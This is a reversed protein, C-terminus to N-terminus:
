EEWGGNCSGDDTINAEYRGGKKYEEVRVTEDDNADNSMRM